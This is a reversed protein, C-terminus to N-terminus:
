LLQNRITDKKLASNAGEVISVRVLLTEGVQIPYFADNEKRNREANGNRERRKRTTQSNREIRDVIRARATHVHLRNGTHTTNGDEAAHNSSERECEYTRVEPTPGGRQM